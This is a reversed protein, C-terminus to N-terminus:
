ARTRSASAAAGPSTRSRKARSPSPTAVAAVVDVQAAAAATMTTAAAGDVDAEAAAAATSASSPLLSGTTTHYVFEYGAGKSRTYPANAAMVEWRGQEADVSARVGVPVPACPPIAARAPSPPVHEGGAGGRPPTGSRPPPPPPAQRGRKTGPSPTAAAAATAVAATAPSSSAPSVAAAADHLARAQAAVLEHEVEDAVRKGAQLARARDLVIALEADGIGGHVLLADTVDDRLWYRLLAESIRGVGAAGAAAAEVEEELAAAAVAPPTAAAVAALPLPAAAPTDDGGDGGDGGSFRHRGEQLVMRSLSGKSAATRVIRREISAGETVLRYVVVPRTQGIRHARDQAQADSTPNWDSDYFIVTDAATLNIGQGGAKTSLLFV